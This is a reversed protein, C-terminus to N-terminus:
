SMRFGMKHHMNLGGGERESRGRRREDVHTTEEEETESWHYHTM